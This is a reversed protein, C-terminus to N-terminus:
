PRITSSRSSTTRTSGPVRPRSRRRRVCSSLNVKLTMALQRSAEIFYRIGDLGVVNAIEHPDCIATTTGLPLVGREFEAPLVMSSEVHVHTDIFGPAVVRGHADIERQGEYVGHTGVVTDGAIAIDM